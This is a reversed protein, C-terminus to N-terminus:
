ENADARGCPYDDEADHGSVDDRAVLEAPTSRQVGQERRSEHERHGHCCEREADEQAVDAQVSREGAQDDGLDGEGQRHGDDDEHGEQAGDRV